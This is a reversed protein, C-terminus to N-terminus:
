FKISIISLVILCTFFAFVFLTTIYFNSRKTENLRKNLDNIDVRFTHSDKGKQLYKFKESNIDYIIQDKIKM